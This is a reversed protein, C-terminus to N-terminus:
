LIPRILKAKKLKSLVEFHGQYTGSAGYIWYAEPNTISLNEWTAFHRPIDDSMPMGSALRNELESFIYELSSQKKPSVSKLLEEQYDLVIHPNSSYLKDKIFEYGVFALKSNNLDVWCGGFILANRSSTFRVQLIGDPITKIIDRM